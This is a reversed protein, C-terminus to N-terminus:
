FKIREGRVVDREDADNLRRAGGAHLLEGDGVHECVAVVAQAGHAAGDVLVVVHEAKGGRAFVAANIHRGVHRDNVLVHALGHRAAAFHNEAGIGVRAVTREAGHGDAFAAALEDLLQKFVRVIDRVGANHRHVEGALRARAHARLVDRKGDDTRHKFVAVYFVLDHLEDAGADLAHRGIVAVAHVDHRGLGCTEGGDPACVVVRLRVECLM